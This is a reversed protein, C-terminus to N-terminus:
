MCVSRMFLNKQMYYLTRSDHHSSCPDLSGYIKRSGLGLGPRSLVHVVVTSTTQFERSGADPRRARSAALDVPAPGPGSCASASEM